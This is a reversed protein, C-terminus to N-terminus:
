IGIPLLAWPELLYERDKGGDPVLPVPRVPCLQHLAQLERLDRLVRLERLDRPEKHELRDRLVEKKIGVLVLHCISMIFVPQAM